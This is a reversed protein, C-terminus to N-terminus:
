YSLLNVNSSAFLNITSQPQSLYKALILSIIASTCSTPKGLMSTYTPSARSGTFLLGLLGTCLGTTVRLWVGFVMLSTAAATLPASSTSVLATSFGLFVCVGLDPRLV